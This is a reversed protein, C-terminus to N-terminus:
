LGMGMNQHFAYGQRLDKILLIEHKPQSTWMIISDHKASKVAMHM